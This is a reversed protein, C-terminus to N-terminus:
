NGCESVQPADARRRAPKQKPPNEGDAPVNARDDRHTQAAVVAIGPATGKTVSGAWVLCSYNRTSNHPALMYEFYAQTKNRPFGSEEIRSSSAVDKQKLTGMTDDRTTALVTWTEYLSVGTDFQDAFRISGDRGGSIEAM